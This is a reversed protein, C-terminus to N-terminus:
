EKLASIFVSSADADAHLELLVNAVGFMAANWRTRM